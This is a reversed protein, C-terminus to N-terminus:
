VGSGFFIVVQNDLQYMEFNYFAGDTYDINIRKIWPTEGIMETEVRIVFDDDGRKITKSQAPFVDKSNFVAEFEPILRLLLFAQQLNFEPIFYTDSGYEYGMFRHWEAGNKYLQKHLEWGGTEPNQLVGSKVVLKAGFPLSIQALYSRIDKVTAKPPPYSFLYSDIVWGTKNNYKVKRWWGTMGETNISNTAEDNLVLLKAAYPIKEVVRSNADPKERISLGTKIAVYYNGSLQASLQLSLFIMAVVLIKKM